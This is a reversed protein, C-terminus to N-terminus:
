APVAAAPLAPAPHILRPVNSLALSASTSASVTPTPHQINFTPHQISSTPTLVATFSTPEPRHSMPCPRSNIQELCRCPDAGRGEREGHLAAVLWTMPLPGGRYRFRSGNFWGRAAVVAAAVACSVCECGRGRTLTQGAGRRGCAAGPWAM